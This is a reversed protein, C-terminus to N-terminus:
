PSPILSKLNEIERKHANQIFEVLQFQKSLAEDRMRLKNQVLDLQTELTGNKSKLANVENELVVNRMRLTVCESTKQEMLTCMNKNAQEASTWSDRLANKAFTELDRETELQVIKNRLAWNVESLRTIEAQCADHVGHDTEVQARFCRLFM